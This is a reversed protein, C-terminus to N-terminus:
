MWGYRRAIQVTLVVISIGLLVLTLTRAKRLRSLKEPAASTSILDILVLGVYLDVATFITWEM